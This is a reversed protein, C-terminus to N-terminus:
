QWDLIIEQYNAGHLLADIAETLQTTAPLKNGAKIRLIKFGNQYVFKDRRRDADVKDKHWYYGDYEVDIKVDNILVFCDLSCRDLPYNLECNGYTGILMDRLAMQQSSTPCTGNTYFSDRVKQQIEPVQSVNKVGYRELITQKIKDRHEVSQSINEVGYKDMLTQKIKNQIAKSSLVNEVGYKDLNTQKIRDRINHDQLINEVGYKDLCTHKSRNQVDVCQMCWDTGYKLRNTSKAKELFEPVDFPNETNYKEQMTRKWKVGECKHCCDGLEDDHRKFYDRYEKSIITGCYDCIVNVKIHSGRTLDEASVTLVKNNGDCVYGKSIYWDKNRITWKIQFKQNAQLM